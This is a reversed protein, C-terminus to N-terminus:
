ESLSAPQRDYGGCPREAPRSLQGARQDTYDSVICNGLALTAASQGLGRHM